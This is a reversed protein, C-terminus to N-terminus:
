SLSWQIGRVIKTFKLVQKAQEECTRQHIKMM